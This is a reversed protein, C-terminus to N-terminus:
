HLIKEYTAKGTRINTGFLEIYNVKPILNKDTASVFIKKLISEFGAILMRAKISQGIKIISIDRKKFPALNMIFGTNNELAKVEFGYAKKDFFSLGDRRGDLAKLLWYVIVPEKANLKGDSHIRADYCVINANKSREIVFLRQHSDAIATGIGALLIYLLVGIGLNIQYLKKKM